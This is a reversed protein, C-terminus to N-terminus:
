RVTRGGYGIIFAFLTRWGGLLIANALLIVIAFSVPMKHDPGLAWRALLAFPYVGLWALEASARAPGRLVVRRRYAGLFPAVVFWALAFPYATVLVDGVGQGEQHSRLGMAAFVVFCLADGAILLIVRVLTPRPAPTAKDPDPAPLPPRHPM